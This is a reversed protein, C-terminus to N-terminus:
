THGTPDLRALHMEWFIETNNFFVCTVFLIDRLIKTPIFEGILRVTFSVPPLLHRLLRSCRLHESRTSMFM